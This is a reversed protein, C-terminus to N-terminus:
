IKRRAEAVLRNTASEIRSELEHSFQKRNLGKSIPALFEVIVKGPEKVFGRRGWFVGSNLAIPVVPASMQSYLAAIGPHYHGKEDPASRTGEPFIILHRGKALAARSDRVMQKLASAGGDRDVAVQSCKRAYWGWLPISLLEIKIVYIPHPFMWVFAVTEWASQHKSAFITPEDPVNEWGRVEYDLGALVRLGWRVSRSWGRVSKEIIWAPLPLVLVMTLLFISLGGFFFANFALSRLLTM